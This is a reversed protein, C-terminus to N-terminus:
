SRGAKEHQPAPYAPDPWTPRVGVIEEILDGVADRMFLMFATKREENNEVFRMKISGLALAGDMTGPMAYYAVWDDGERRMALRGIEKTM